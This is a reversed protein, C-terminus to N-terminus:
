GTEGNRSRIMQILRIPKQPPLFAGACYIEPAFLFAPDFGPKEINKRHKIRQHPQSKAKRPQRQM